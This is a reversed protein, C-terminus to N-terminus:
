IMDRVRAFGEWSGVARWRFSFRRAVSRSGRQVGGNVVQLRCPTAELGWTGSRGWTHTSTVEQHSQWDKNRMRGLLGRPIGKFGLEAAVRVCVQGRSGRRDWQKVTGQKMM